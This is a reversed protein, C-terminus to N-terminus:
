TRTLKVKGGSSRASASDRMLRASSRIDVHHYNFFLKHITRIFLANRYSAKRGPLVRHISGRVKTSTM